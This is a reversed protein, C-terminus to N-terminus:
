QFKSVITVTNSVFDINFSCIKFIQGDWEAYTFHHIWDGLIIAASHPGVPRSLVIHRHGFVFFDIDPHDTLYEEAFIVLPEKTEDDSVPIVDSYDRSSTSWRHAFPITWRPHIASYLRQCFRNRFLSRIFRFGPNLRGVGDGHAMFFRRGLIDKTLTGDIVTVGIEDRLYDFLWIDHNGTFWYIKVGADALEALAGFFRIHGRPVVTKYEYWYDLVDGLMYLEAASDKISRLWEVVRREHSRHDTIYTAGLHSDSMFYVKDRAM